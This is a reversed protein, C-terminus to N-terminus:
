ELSSLSIAAFLSVIAEDLIDEVEDDDTAYEDSM